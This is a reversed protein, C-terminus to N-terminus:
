AVLERALAVNEGIQDAYRPDMGVIVGEDAKTNQLAFEFARRLDEPTCSASFRDHVSDNRDRGAPSSDRESLLHSVLNRAENPIVPWPNKLM